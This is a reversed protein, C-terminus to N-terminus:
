AVDALALVTTGVARAEFCCHHPLPLFPATTIFPPSNARELPPSFSLYHQQKSDFYATIIPTTHRGSCCLTDSYSAGCHLSGHSRSCGVATAFSLPVPAASPSQRVDYPSLLLSCLEPNSRPPPLTPPPTPPFRGGVQKQAEGRWRMGRSNGEEEM